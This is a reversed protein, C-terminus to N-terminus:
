IEFRAFIQDINRLHEEPRLCADIEEASLKATIRPDELLVQRFERRERWAKQALEQILMRAGDKGDRPMGKNTLTRMVDESYIVGKTLNLNELMRDTDVKLGKMEQNFACLLYYVTMASDPLITRENANADLSREQWCLAQNEGAVILYARILRALSCIREAVNPNLKHPMASSGGEEKFAEQVESIETQQLLRINTAFKELSNAISALLSLWLFHRDRAVIQTSIKAPSIGLKECVIEEIRPDLKYTGVAGSVKGLLFRSENAEYDELHREMEGFWNLIKLGFTIPEAHVGHTRGIELAKKYTGAIEKLTGILEKMARKILEGSDKMQLTTTPDWIDFSTLGDHLYPRAEPPLTPGVVNLFAVMEQDIRKDEAEIEAVTFKVSARVKTTIGLPILGLKEKAELVAIEVDLWRQYKNGKEWVTGIEPKVYRPDM